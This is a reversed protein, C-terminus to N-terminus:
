LKKTSVTYIIYIYMYMRPRFQEHLCTIRLGTQSHGINVDGDDWVLDTMRVTHLDVVLM